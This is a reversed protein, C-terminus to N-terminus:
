NKKNFVREFYRYNGIEAPILSDPEMKDIFFVGDYIASWKGRNPILDSPTMKLSDIYARNLETLSNFDVWAFPTQRSHLLYEVSTSDCIFKEIKGMNIKSEYGRQGHFSIFPLFYSQARVEEPLFDVMTPLKCINKSMHFTSTSVVIKKDPYKEMILWFLNEYLQKERLSNFEIWKMNDASKVDLIPRNKVWNALGINSSITRELFNLEDSPSKKRLELIENLMRNSLEHFKLFDFTSIERECKLCRAIDDLEQVMGVYRKVAKSSIRFTLLDGTLLSQYGSSYTIEIGAINIGRKKNYIIVPFIDSRGKSIYGMLHSGEIFGENLVNGSDEGMDLILNMKEMEYLNREYILVNFDLNEVLYKTIRAKSILSSGDRHDAEGLFVIRKELLISDLFKLKTDEVQSNFETFGFIRGELLVSGTQGLTCSYFCILTTLLLIIRMLKMM